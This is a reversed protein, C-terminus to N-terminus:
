RSRPSAAARASGAAGPRPRRARRREAPRALDDADDCPAVEQTGEALREGLLLRRGPDVEAVAESPAARGRPLHERGDLRDPLPELADVEDAAGHAVQEHVLRAEVHVDGDLAVPDGEPAREGLREAAPGDRVVLEARGHDHVVAAADVDGRRSRLEVVVGTRQRGDLLRRDALIEVPAVEGDVRQGDRQLALVESPEHVEEAAQAVELRADEAHEVVEREDVVRRPEEAREAVLVAVAETHLRVRLTERPGAHLHLQDPLERRRPQAVLQLRQEGLLLDGPM